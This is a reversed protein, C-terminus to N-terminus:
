GKQIKILATENVVPEAKTKKVGKMGASPPPPGQPQAGAEIAMDDHPNRSKGRSRPTPTEKIKM